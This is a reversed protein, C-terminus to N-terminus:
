PAVAPTVTPRTGAWLSFGLASAIPILILALMILALVFFFGGSAQGTLAAFLVLVIWWDAFRTRPVETAVASTQGGIVPELLLMLLVMALAYLVAIALAGGVALGADRLRKAHLAFWAWTLPIQVLAFAWIGWRAAAPPSILVQSLFSLVYVVLVGGAFSRPAIRGSVSFFSAPSEM